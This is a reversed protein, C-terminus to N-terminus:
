RRRVTLCGAHGSKALAAIHFRATLAPPVGDAWGMRRACSLCLKWKAPSSGAVEARLPARDMQAVPATIERVNCTEVYCGAGTASGPQLSISKESLNTINYGNRAPVTQVGVRTLLAAGSLNVAREKKYRMASQSELRSTAAVVASERAKCAGRRPDFAAEGLKRERNRWAIGNDLGTGSGLARQMVPVALPRNDHADSDRSTGQAPRARLGLLSRCGRRHRDPTRLPRLSPLEHCKGSAM